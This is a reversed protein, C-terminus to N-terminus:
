SAALRAGAKWETPEFALGPTSTFISLSYREKEMRKTARTQAAHRSTSSMTKVHIGPRSLPLLNEGGTHVLPLPFVLTTFVALLKAGLPAPLFLKM